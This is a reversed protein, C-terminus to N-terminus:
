AGAGTDATFDRGGWFVRGDSARYFKHRHRFCAPVFGEGKKQRSLDRANYHEMEYPNVNEISQIKFGAAPGAQNYSANEIEINISEYGDSEPDQPLSGYDRKYLLNRIIISDGITISSKAANWFLWVSISTNSELLTAVSEAEGGESMRIAINASVLSGSDLGDATILFHWGNDLPNIPNTSSDVWDRKEKFSLTGNIHATFSPVANLGTIRGRYPTRQLLNVEDPVLINESAAQAYDKAQRMQKIIEGQNTQCYNEFDMLRLGNQDFLSCYGAPLVENAEPYLWGDRIEFDRAKRLRAKDAYLSLTGKRLKQDDLPNIFFPPLDLLM